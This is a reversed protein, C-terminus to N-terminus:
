CPGAPPPNTLLKHLEHCYEAVVESLLICPKDGYRECDPPLASAPTTTAASGVAGLAVAIVLLRRANM